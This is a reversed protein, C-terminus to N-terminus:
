HKMVKSPGHRKLAVRKKERHKLVARKKERRKLAAQQVQEVQLALHDMHQLLILMKAESAGQRALTLKKQAPATKEQVLM